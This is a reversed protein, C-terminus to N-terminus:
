FQDENGNKQMLVNCVLFIDIMLHTRIKQLLPQAYRSLKQTCAAWFNKAFSKKCTLISTRVHGKRSWCAQPKPFGVIPPELHSLHGSLPSEFTQGIVKVVNRPPMDDFSIRLGLTKRWFISPHTHVLGAIWLQVLLSKRISHKAWSCGYPAFFM